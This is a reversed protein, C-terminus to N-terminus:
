DPIAFIQNPFILDPDGIAGANRRVIDVFRIGEGYSSFAIRWLADGRQVVVMQSGDLGRSLDRTAVPLKYSAVVTGDADRLVFTMMRSRLDLNVKGALQWSGDPGTSDRGFPRGDAMAEVATGGRSVGSIVLQGGEKWALSRPAIAPRVPAEASSSAADGAVEVVNDDPSQLLEPLANETEPLLAVLPREDKGESVQIGLAVDALATKGDESSSGISVLHDGPGLNKDLVVVWEGNEDAMTEGLVVDGEFVTIKAGAASKGAFVAAGDPKVQALDIELELTSGAIDTAAAQGTTTGSDTAATADTGTKTGTKTDAEADTETASDKDGDDATDNTATDNTATDNTATDTTVTATTTQPAVTEVATRDFLVFALAMVALASGAGILIYTLLRM